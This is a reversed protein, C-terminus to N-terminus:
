EVYVASLIVDRPENSITRKQKHEYTLRARNSEIKQIQAEFLPIM